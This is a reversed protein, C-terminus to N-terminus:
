LEGAKTNDCYQQWWLQFILLTYAMRDLIPNRQRNFEYMFKKMGAPDFVGQRRILDDALNDNVVEKIENHLWVNIPVGFGSKPREVIKRPVYEYLIDKLPAKLVEGYLNYRKPVSLSREAIRYDLLPCRCELSYFMSARDVKTLMDDTLGYQISQLVTARVADLGRKEYDDGGYLLISEQKTLGKPLVSEILGNATIYDLHIINTINKAHYLKDLMWKKHDYRDFGASLLRLAPGALWTLKRHSALREKATYSPYGVFFEDGGDGSLAVAVYERTMKSLMMTPIQSNDAFPESYAEPIKQILELADKETCYLERHDTGLIKAVEAAVRADDNEKERFGISYTHITGATQSQALSAIVSSDIGGSLFVGVPVDAELRLQVSESLLKKIEDVYEEYTGQYDVKVSNVDWYKKLTERREFINYELISGQPLKFVNEFISHPAPIYMNWIYGHLASVNLTKDFDPLTFFGRLDSTFAIGGESAMYYLPKVGFRDRCLTITGANRDLFAFAWMGNFMAAAKEVGFEVCAYLVVETDCNSLFTYGRKMLENRIEKYNYIEGNYTLVFRRDAFTMPQRGRESLDLISLRRHALGVTSNGVRDVFLGKGDPGRWRAADIMRDVVARAADEDIRGTVIGAIGCM